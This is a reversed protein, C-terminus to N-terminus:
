LIYGPIKTILIGSVLFYTGTLSIRSVVCFKVGILIFHAVKISVFICSFKLHPWKGNQLSFHLLMSHCITALWCVIINIFNMQHFLWFIEIYQVNHM